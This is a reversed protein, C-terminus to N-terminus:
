PEAAFVEVKATDVSLVAVRGDSLPAIARGISIAGPVTLLRGGGTWLSSVAGSADLAYLEQWGTTAWVRDASVAFADLNQVAADLSLTRDISPAVADSTDEFSLLQHHLTSDYTDYGVWLRDGSVFARNVNAYGGDGGALDLEAVFAGALDLQLIRANCSDLVYIHHPLAAVNAAYCLPRGAYTQDLAVAGNAGFSPDLEGTALWRRVGAGDLAVVRGDAAVSMDLLRGAAGSVFVQEPSLAGLAAYLEIESERMVYARGDATLELDWPTEGNSLDWTFAARLGHSVEFGLAASSRSFPGAVAEVVVSHHGPALSEVTFVSRVAGDPSFGNSQEHPSGGMRPLAVRAGGDFRLYAATLLLGSQASASLVRVGAAPRTGDDQFHLSAFSPALHHRYNGGGNNDWRTEGEAELRLSFEVEETQADYPLRADFSFDRGDFTAEVEGSSRWADTSFRVVVRRPASVNLARVVGSLVPATHEDLWVRSSLLRLPAEPTVRQYVYHNRFPSWHTKGNMKVYAAYEVEPAQGSWASAFDKVEVGWRERGGALAAEYAALAIHSTRFGDQSWVVGVEKQYADNRVALDVWFSESTAGHYVYRSYHGSDLVHVPAASLETAGLALERADLDPSDLSGDPACAALGLLALLACVRIAAFM